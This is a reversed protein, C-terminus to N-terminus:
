PCRLRISREFRSIVFRVPRYRNLPRGCLPFFYYSEGETLLHRHQVDRPATLLLIRLQEDYDGPLSDFISVRVAYFASFGSGGVAVRVRYTRADQACAPAAGLGIGLILALFHGAPRLTEGRGAHM